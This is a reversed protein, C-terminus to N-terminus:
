FPLFLIYLLLAANQLAAAQRRKRMGMFLASLDACELNEGCFETAVSSM